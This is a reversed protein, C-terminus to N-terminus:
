RVGMASALKRKVFHYPNRVPRAVARLGATLCLAQIKELGRIHREIVAPNSLKRAVWVKHAPGGKRSARPGTNRHKSIPM